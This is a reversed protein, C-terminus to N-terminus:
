GAGGRPTARRPHRRSRARQKLRNIHAKQALGADQRGQFADDRLDDPVREAIERVTFGGKRLIGEVHRTDSLYSGRPRGRQGQVHGSELNHERAEHGLEICHSVMALTASAQFHLDAHSLQRDDDLQNVDGCDERFEDLASRWAEALKLHAALWRDSGQRRDAPIPARLTAVIALQIAAAKKRGADTTAGAYEIFWARLREVREDLRRMERQVAQIEDRVARAKIALADKSGEMPRVVDACGPRAVFGHGVLWGWLRREAAGADDSLRIVRDNDEARPDRVKTM